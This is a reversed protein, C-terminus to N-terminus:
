QKTLLAKFPINIPKNLDLLIVVPPYYAMRSFTVALCTNKVTGWQTFWNNTQVNMWESVWVNM